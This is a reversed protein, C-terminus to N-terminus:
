WAERWRLQLPYLSHPKVIRACSQPNEGIIDIMGRDACGLGTEHARALYGISLPEFGMLHAMVADCAVPDTGAAALGMPLKTGSGPGQGEMVEFADIVAIDPMLVKGLRVLNEALARVQAVHKPLDGHHCLKQLSQRLAVTLSATKSALKMTMYNKDLINWLIEGIHESSDGLETGHMRSRQIRRLCGMMNKLSLTVTSLVHTKAVAVSIICGAKLPLAHYQIAQLGGNWTLLEITGGISDHNLDALRVSKFRKVAEHYGFNRFAFGTSRAAGEAITVDGAGFGDLFELVPIVAEAQTSALPNTSSLFNPKVIIPAKIKGSVDDRVLELAARVAEYRSNGRAVAVRPRECRNCEDM